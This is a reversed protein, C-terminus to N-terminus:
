WVQLVTFYYAAMEYFSLDVQYTEGVIYDFDQYAEGVDDSNRIYISAGNKLIGSEDYTVTAEYFLGGNYVLYIREATIEITVKPIEIVKEDTITQFYRMRAEEPDILANGITLAEEQMLADSREHDDSDYYSESEDSIYIMKSEEMPAEAMDLAPAPAPVAMDAAAENTYSRNPFAAPAENPSNIEDSLRLNMFLVPIIIAACLCAAFLGGYRRVFSYRNQYSRPELKITKPEEIEFDKGFIPPAAIASVSKEAIGAEIRGWLDPLDNAALKQYEDALVKVGPHTSECAVSDPNMNSM